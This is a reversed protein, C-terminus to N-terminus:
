MGTRTHLSRLEEETLEVGLERLTEGLRAGSVTERALEGEPSEVVLETGVLKRVRGQEIRMVVPKGVFPSDPHTATYHHAVEYDVPRAPARDFTHLAEWGKRAHKELTWGAGDRRLRHPWGAQDVVEGDRLPIPDLVGAGFGVDALYDDGEVSVVLMMHTYPGPHDPQVRAIHRSVTFGLRELVAAFLLAHEYCYGGRRSGVLKSEIANLGLGPHAELVVDINEFPITGVHARHLRYLAEVSPFPWPVGIRELYRVVDVSDTRWEETAAHQRQGIETM